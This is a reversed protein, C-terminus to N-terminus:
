LTRWAYTRTLHLQLSRSRRLRDRRPGAGPTGTCPKRWPPFWRHSLVFSLTSLAVLWLRLVFCHLLCPLLRSWVIWLTTAEALLVVDAIKATASPRQRFRM